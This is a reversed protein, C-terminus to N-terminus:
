SKIEESPPAELINVARSSMRCLQGWVPAVLDARVGRGGWESSGQQIYLSEVHLRVITNGRFPSRWFHESRALVYSM